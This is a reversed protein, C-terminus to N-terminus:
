QSNDTEVTIINRYWSLFQIRWGTVEFTVHQNNKQIATLQAFADSSNWKWQWLSDRDQFVETTGDDKQLVVYYVGANGENKVYSNTIHGSVHDVMVKDRVVYFGVWVGLFVLVVASWIGVKRWNLSDRYM